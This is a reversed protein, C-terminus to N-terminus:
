EAHRLMETEEGESRVFVALTLTELLFRFMYWEEFTVLMDTGMALYLEADPHQQKLLEVTTATYSKGERHLEMDSIEANPVDSFALKTLELRELATPSGEALEKHPPINAPIILLKDPKLQESITMAAEVHGCHPPNFSGGYIVIKM